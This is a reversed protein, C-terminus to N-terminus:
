ADGRLHKCDEELELLAGKFVDGHPTSGRDRKYAVFHAVEHVLTSFSSLWYGSARKDGRNVMIRHNWFDAYGGRGTDPGYMIKIDPVTRTLSPELKRAIKWVKRLVKRIDHQDHFGFIYPADARAKKRKQKTTSKERGRVRKADLVACTREVLTGTKESCPLCYRDTANKRPRVGLNRGGGCHPCTWRHAM